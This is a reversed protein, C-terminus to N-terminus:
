NIHAIKYDATSEKVNSFDSDQWFVCIVMQKLAKLLEDFM